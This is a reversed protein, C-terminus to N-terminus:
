KEYAESPPLDLQNRPLGTWWGIELGALVNFSSAADEPLGRVQVVPTLSLGGSFRRKYPFFSYSLGLVYHAGYAGRLEENEIRKDKLQLVGLGAGAHLALRGTLQVQGELGLGSLTGQEDDKRSGGSYIELGLGLRRTLKQGLRISFGSGPWTGLSDGDEWNHTVGQLLGVSLYYGQRPAPQELDVALAPRAGVLLLVALTAAVLAIRHSPTSM